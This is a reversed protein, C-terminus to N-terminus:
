KSLAQYIKELLDNQESAKLNPSVRVLTTNILKSKGASLVGTFGDLYEKRKTADEVTRFVEVTGGADSGRETCSTETTVFNFNDDLEGYYQKDVRSDIYSVKIYYQGDKGIENNPDTDEDLICTESITDITKLAGSIADKNPEANIMSDDKDTLNTTLELKYVLLDKNDDESKLTLEYTDSSASIKEERVVVKKYSTEKGTFGIKNENASFDNIGETNIIIQDGGSYSGTIKPSECVYYGNKESSNCDVSMTAVVEKVGNNDKTEKIEAGDISINYRPIVLLFIILGIIAIGAVILAILLPKKINKTAM